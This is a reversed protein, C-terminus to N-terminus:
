GGRKKEEVDVVWVHYGYRRLRAALRHARNRSAPRGYTLVLPAARAVEGFAGYVRRQWRVLWVPVSQGSFGCTTLTLPALHLRRLRM